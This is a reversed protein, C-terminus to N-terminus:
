SGDLLYHLIAICSHGQLWKSGLSLSVSGKLSQTDLESLPKDDSIIFGLDVSPPVDSFDGGDADLIM